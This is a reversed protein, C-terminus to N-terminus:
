NGMLKRYEPYVYNYYNHIINSYSANHDPAFTGPEYSFPGRYGYDILAKYIKGWNLHDHYEYMGTYGPNIHVDRDNGGGHVHLVKLVGSNLGSVFGEGTNYNNVTGHSFDLGFKVSSVQTTFYNIYAPKNTLSNAASQYNCLNEIVLTSGVAQAAPGLEKLSNVLATKYPDTYTYNDDPGGDRFGSPHILLYEADLVEVANIMKKMRNVADTRISNTKHAFDVPNSDNASTYTGDSQKTYKLGIGPMHIHWIKLGVADFTAKLQTLKTVCDSNFVGYQNSDSPSFFTSYGLGIDIYQAGTCKLQKALTEWSGGVGIAVSLPLMLKTKDKVTGGIVYHEADNQYPYPIKRIEVDDIFFESVASNKTYSQLMFVTERTVAGFDIRVTHWEADKIENNEPNNIILKEETMTATQLLPIPFGASQAHTWYPGDKPISIQKGDLYYAIPVGPGYDSNKAANVLLPDSSSGGKFAIRFSLSAMCVENQALNTLKPFCLIGRYKTAHGVALAGYIERCQFLKEWNALGRSKIYSASMANQKPTDWVTSIADSGYSSESSISAITSTTTEYGTTTPSAKYSYGRTGAQRDMGWVMKDFHEAFLLDADPAYNITPTSLIDNVKITRSTKSDLVMARGSTDSITIKLGQSYSRAPLVIYFDKGTSNLKVGDVNTCNLVVSPYAVSGSVLSATGSTFNFKGCVAGGSRDTVSISSITASGTLKLKLVGCVARLLVGSEATGEGYMPNAKDGFSNEAYLQAPQLWMTNKTTCIDAPYFAWYSDSKEVTVYAMNGDAVVEYNKNNIRIKDGDKWTLKGGGVHATRSDEGSLDEDTFLELRVYGEPIEGEINENDEQFIDEDISTTECACMVGALAFLLLFKKM